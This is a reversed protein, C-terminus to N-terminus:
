GYCGMRGYAMCHGAPIWYRSWLFGMTVQWITGKEARGVVGVGGHDAATLRGCWFRWGPLKSNHAQGAVIM